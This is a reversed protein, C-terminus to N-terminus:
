MMMVIHLDGYRDDSLGDMLLEIRGEEFARHFCQVLIVLRERRVALVEDDPSDNEGIYAPRFELNTM